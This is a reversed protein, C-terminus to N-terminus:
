SSCTCDWQIGDLVQAPIIFIGHEFHPLLKSSNVPVRHSGECCLPLASPTEMDHHWLTIADIAERLKAYVAKHGSFFILFIVGHSSRRRGQVRISAMRIWWTRTNPTAILCGQKLIISWFVRPRILQFIRLSETSHSADVIFVSPLM